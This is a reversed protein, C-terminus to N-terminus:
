DTAFSTIRMMAIASTKSVRFGPQSEAKVRHSAAEAADVWAKQRRYLKRVRILKFNQREM